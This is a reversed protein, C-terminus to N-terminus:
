KRVAKFFSYSLTMEKVDEPLDPSVYFRLPMERTEGPKLTQQVFCFCEIKKLYATAKGPTVSPIAQGSIVESTINKVEFVV